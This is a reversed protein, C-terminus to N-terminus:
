DGESDIRLGPLAKRLLDMGATGMRAHSVSLSKLSKLGALAKAGEDTVATFELNL